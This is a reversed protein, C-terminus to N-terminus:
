RGTLGTNLDGKYSKSHCKAKPPSFFLTNGFPFKFPWYNFSSRHISYQLINTPHSATWYLPFSYPLCMTVVVTYMMIQPNQLMEYSIKKSSLFLLYCTNWLQTIFFINSPVPKYSVKKLDKSKILKRETMQQSYNWTILLPDCSTRLFQTHWMTCCIEASFVSGMM